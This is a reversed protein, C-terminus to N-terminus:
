RYFSFAVALVIFSLVALVARAVQAWEWIDRAEPWHKEAQLSFKALFADSPAALSIERHWIRNLPFIFLWYIADSALLLLFAAILLWSLETQIPSQFFLIALVILGGLEGIVGAVFFGPYYITQVTGYSAQDLRLKGPMEFAHALPLGMAVAILILALILLL